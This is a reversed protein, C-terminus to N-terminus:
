SVKERLRDLAKQAEASLILKASISARYYLLEDWNECGKWFINKMERMADPSYHSLTETLRKISEDM